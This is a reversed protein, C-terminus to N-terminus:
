AINRLWPTDVSLWDITPFSVLAYGVVGVQKGDYENLALGEKDYGVIKGTLTDENVCAVEVLTNTGEFAACFGEFSFTKLNEINKLAKEYVGPSVKMALKKLYSTETKISRISEARYITISDFNCEQDIEALTLYEENADLIYAVHFEHPRDVYRVEVLQKNTAIKKLEDIYNFKDM